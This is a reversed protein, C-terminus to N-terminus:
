FVTLLFFSYFSPRAEFFKPPYTEHRPRAEFRQTCAEDEAEFNKSVLEEHRPRAEFDEAKTKAKGEATSASAVVSSNALKSHQRPYVNYM